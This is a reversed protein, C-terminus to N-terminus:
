FSKKGILEALALANLIYGIILLGIDIRSYLIIIIVSIIAGAILSIFYLTSEIKIKKSVYVSVSETGFTAIAAAIGAISLLYFLDGYLEPELLTAIYFWFAAALITGISDSAGIFSLNKITSM